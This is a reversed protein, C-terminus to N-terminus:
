LRDLKHYQYLIHYVENCLRPFFEMDLQIRQELNQLRNLYQRMEIFSLQQQPRDEGDIRSEM